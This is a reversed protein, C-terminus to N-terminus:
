TTHHSATSRAQTETEEQRPARPKGGRGWRVIIQDSFRLDVSEFANGSSSLAPLLNVLRRTKASFDSWGVLAPFPFGELFFSLGESRDIHIESVRGIAPTTRLVRLLVLAQQVDRGGASRHASWVDRDLGTIMPFDLADGPRVRGLVTGEEDMYYLAGEIGVVVAPKRERVKILVRDPLRKVVTANRIWRHGELRNAIEDADLLVLSADAPIGSASRIAEPTLRGSGEVDVVKVVFLPSAVLARSLAFLSLTSVGIGAVWVAVRLLRPLLRRRAGESEGTARRPKGAAPMQGRSGRDSRLVRGAHRLRPNVFTEDGKWSGWQPCQIRAM